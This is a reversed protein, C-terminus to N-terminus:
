EEIEFHQIIRCYFKATDLLAYRKRSRMAGLQLKKLSVEQGALTTCFLYARCQKAQDIILIGNWRQLGIEQMM